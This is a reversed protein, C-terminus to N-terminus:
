RFKGVNKEPDYTSLADARKLDAVEELDGNTELQLQIASLQNAAAQVLAAEAAIRASLDASEKIDTTENLRSIMRELSEVRAQYREYAAQATANGSVALRRQEDIVAASGANQDGPIIEEGTFPQYTEVLGRAIEGTRGGGSGSEGLDLFEGISEPVIRRLEFQPLGNEFDGLNRTGTLAATQDLLEGLQGTQTEFDRQLGRLQEIQNAVQSISQLTNSNDYVPIGQASAISAFGGAVSFIGIILLSRM